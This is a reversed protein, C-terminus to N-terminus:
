PSVTTVRSTDPKSRALTGTRFGHTRRLYIDFCGHEKRDRTVQGKKGYQALVDPWTFAEAFRRQGHARLEAVSAPKALLEDVRRAFDNAGNFYVAGDGAVWRNFRNDHAVVANGAGLAEVLSPNTGGVQHGHACRVFPVPQRQGAAARAPVVKDGVRHPCRQARGRQAPARPDLAPHLHPHACVTSPTQCFHKLLAKDPNSKDTIDEQEFYATRQAYAQMSAAPMDQAATM